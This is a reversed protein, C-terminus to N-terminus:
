VHEPWLGKTEIFGTQWGHPDLLALGPGAAVVFSDDPDVSIDRATTGSDM